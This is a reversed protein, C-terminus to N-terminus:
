EAWRYRIKESGFQNWELLGDSQLRGIVIYSKVQNELAFRRIADLSFDRQNVFIKYREFDILVNGAFSDAKQEIDSKVSTFDVFRQKIDGNLIHGIEHFLSFWFIDAFSQRITMCMIMRGSEDKKVFGQVPAGKFHKVIEFAIGCEAFIDRLRQHIEDGDSFMLRKIRPISEKLKNLDPMDAIKINATLIECIRQWAFLVYSDVNVNKSIQARYVANYSLDPIATLNSVALITRLDLVQNAPSDDEEMIKLKKLYAIIDKLNKLVDLEVRTIENVEEFELLERDYNSQLNMWFSAPIGLAYELKRAYAVSINKKGRIVTSVHKETVGTRIALEKQSMGRDELIEELTEGPHIILDRSLGTTTQVKEM